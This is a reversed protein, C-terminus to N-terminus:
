EMKTDSHLSSCSLINGPWTNSGASNSLFVQSRQFVRVSLSFFHNMKSSILALFTFLILGTCVEVGTLAAVALVFGPFTWDEPTPTVVLFGLELGLLVALAM